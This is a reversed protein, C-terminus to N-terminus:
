SHGFRVTNRPDGRLILFCGNAFELGCAQKEIRSPISLVAAQAGPQVISSSQLTLLTQPHASAETLPSPGRVGSGLKCV